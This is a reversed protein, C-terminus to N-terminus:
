DLRKEDPDLSRRKQGYAAVFRSYRLRTHAHYAVPYPKAHFILKFIIFYFLVGHLYIEPRHNISRIRATMCEGGEMLENIGRSSSYKTRESFMIFTLTPFDYPYIPRDEYRGAVWYGSRLRSGSAALQLLCDHVITCVFLAWLLVFFFFFTYFDVFFGSACLVHM